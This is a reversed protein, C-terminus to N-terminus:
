EARENKKECGSGGEGGGVKEEDDLCITKKGVCVCVKEWKCVCVCVSMWSAWM